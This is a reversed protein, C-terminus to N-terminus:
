ISFGDDIVMNHGNMHKADDSLLFKIPGVIDKENLLEGGIVSEVYKKQFETPQNEFIGGPSICNVRFLNDNGFKAFYKTLHIIASKVAAYEVPMTMETGAYINFKPAVIGYISSFNIISISNKNKKFTALAEKMVLFASGLALNVTENFDTLNIDEVGKGYNVGRPYSCNVVGSITNNSFLSKVDETCSVDSIMFTINKYKSMEDLFFKTFSIDTAIINVGDQALAEVVIKGIKGNAGLILVKTKDKIKPV